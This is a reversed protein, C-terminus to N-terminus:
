TERLTVRAENWLETYQEQNIQGSGLMTVLRIGVKKLEADTVMKGHVKESIDNAWDNCNNCVLSAIDGACQLCGMFKQCRRCFYGDRAERKELHVGRLSRTPDDYSAPASFRHPPLKKCHHGIGGACVAKGKLWRILGKGVIVVPRGDITQRELSETDV